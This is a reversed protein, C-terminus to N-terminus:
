ERIVLNWLFKCWFIYDKNCFNIESAVFNHIVKILPMYIESVNSLKQNLVDIM